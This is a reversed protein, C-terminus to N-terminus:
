FWKKRKSSYAMTSTAAVRTSHNGYKRIDMGAAELAQMKQM